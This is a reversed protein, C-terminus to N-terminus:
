HKKQDTFKAYISETDMSRRGLSTQGGKPTTRILYDAGNVTKWVMGGRIQLANKRSRELETFAAHADIYQRAADPDIDAIELNKKM